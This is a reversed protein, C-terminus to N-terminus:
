QIDKFYVPELWVIRLLRRWSPKYDRFCCIQSEKSKHIRWAPTLTSSGTFCTKFPWSTSTHDRIVHFGLHPIIKESILFFTLPFQSTEWLDVIAILPRLTNISSREKSPARITSEMSSASTHLSNKFADRIWNKDVIQNNLSKHPSMTFVPSVPLNSWSCHNSWPSLLNCPCMPELLFLFWLNWIWCLPAVLFSTWEVQFINQPLNFNGKRM